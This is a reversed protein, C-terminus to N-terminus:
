SPRRSFSCQRMYHMLNCANADTEFGARQVMLLGVDKIEKWSKVISEISNDSNETMCKFIVGVSSQIIKNNSFHSTQLSKTRIIEKLFSSFVRAGKM